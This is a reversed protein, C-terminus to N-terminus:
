ATDVLRDLLADYLRGGLGRRQADPDLYVSTEVTQHFAPHARYPSSAAYGLVDGEDEVVLLQHPGTTAYTSLWIEREAMTAPRVDFTADSHQVYHNYIGLLASLDGARGNRIIVTGM